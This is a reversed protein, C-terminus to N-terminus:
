VRIYASPSFRTGAENGFFLYIHLPTGDPQGVSPIEVKVRGDARCAGPVEILLPSRPLTEFFYGVFVRDHAAARPCEMGNEWELTVTWEERSMEKVVPMELSGVSFRFSPFAWVGEGPRFCGGNLRHFLSDSKAAGTERAAVSWIPLDGITRRYMRWMKRVETFRASSEIEGASREKRKGRKSKCVIVRNGRKFYTYGNIRLPGGSLLADNFISVNAM